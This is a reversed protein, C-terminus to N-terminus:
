NISEYKVGTGKLSDKASSKEKNCWIPKYKAFFERKQIAPFFIWSIEKREAWRM